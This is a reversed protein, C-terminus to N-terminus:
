AQTMVVRFHMGRAHGFTSFCAADVVCGFQRTDFRETGLPHAPDGGVEVCQKLFVIAAGTIAVDVVFLIRRDAFRYRQHQAFSNGACRRGFRRAPNDFEPAVLDELLAGLVEIRQSTCGVVLFVEGPRRAFQDGIEAKGLFVVILVQLFLVLAAFFVFLILLATGAVARVVVLVVAFCKRRLTLLVALVAFAIGLGRDAGVHLEIGSAVFFRTRFVCGEVRCNVGM